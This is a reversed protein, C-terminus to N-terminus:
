PKLIKELLSKAPEVIAWTGNPQKRLTAFQLADGNGIIDGQNLEGLNASPLGCLRFLYAPVQPSSFLVCRRQDLQAKGAFPAYANGGNLAISIDGLGGLVQRDAIKDGPQLEWQQYLRISTAPPATTKSSCGGTMFLLFMLGLWVVWLCRASGCEWRIALM